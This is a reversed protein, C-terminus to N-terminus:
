LGFVYSCYTSKGRGVHLEVSVKKASPQGQVNEPGPASRDHVHTTEAPLLRANSVPEQPPLLQAQFPTLLIRAMRPPGPEGHHM